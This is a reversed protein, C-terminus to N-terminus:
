FKKFIMTDPYQGYINKFRNKKMINFIMKSRIKTSADYGHM